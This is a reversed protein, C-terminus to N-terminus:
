RGQKKVSGHVQEGVPGGTETRQVTCSYFHYRLETKMRDLPKRLNAVETLQAAKFLVVPPRKHQALEYDLLSQVYFTEPGREEWGM